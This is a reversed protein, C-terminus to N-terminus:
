FGTFVAWGKATAISPDCTASGPNNDVVVLPPVLGKKKKFVPIGEGLATFLANITDASLNNTSFYYIAALGSEHTTGNAITISTLNCNAAYIANYTTSSSLDLTTIPSNSLFVTRLLASNVILSSLSPNDSLDISDLGTMNSLDATVLANNERMSLIGFISPNPLTNIFNLDTNTSGFIDSLAQLSQCGAFYWPNSANTIGTNIITLNQCNFAKMGGLGANLYLISALNTCASFDWLGEWDVGGGVVGQVAQPNGLVVNNGDISIEADGGGVDLQSIVNAHNVDSDGFYVVFPTLLTSYVASYPGFNAGDKFRFRYSITEGILASGEVTRYGRNTGISYVPLYLTLWEGDNIKWEYVTSYTQSATWSFSIIKGNSSLQIGTVNPIEPPPPPPPESTGFSQTFTVDETLAAITTQYNDDKVRFGANTGGIEITTNNSEADLVSFRFEIDTINPNAVATKTPLGLDTMLSVIEPLASVDPGVQLYQDLDKLITFNASTNDKYSIIGSLSWILSM